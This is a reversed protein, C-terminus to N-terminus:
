HHAIFLPIKLERVLIDAMSERFWRSVSGRRYAGLVVLVRNGVTKLYNVIEEDAFGKIVTYRAEPYHRKMFEKMLKQDPLHLSDKNPKITLVEQPIQTCQPMLYSFMKIAHVSSPDGDYLMIVKEIPNFKQPVLIVPCQADALLDRVLRTPPKETFRNLTEGSYVVLMDAYISEHKLERLPAKHDRHLSYTIGAQRCGEEFYQIAANRKEQDQANLKKLKAEANKEKLLVDFMSYTAYSPDELFVGVLHANAKQALYLSFNNTSESFRLGDFAAIIKKM